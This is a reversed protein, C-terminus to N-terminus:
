FYVTPLKPGPKSVDQLVLQEIVYQDVTQNGVMFGFHIAEFM